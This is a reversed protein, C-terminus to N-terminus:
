GIELLKEGTPSHVVERLAQVVRMDNQEPFRELTALAEDVSIAGRYARPRVMACFANAVSLIRAPLIIEDGKIRRPYGTGDLRENMQCITEMVPLEFDIDKLINYAHEVHRQMAAMEEPTLRGPKNLIKKEVFMKGVQSLNAAAEVTTVELPELNLRRAVAASFAGMIRTHGGLYPDINEITHVLAQITQQVVRQGQERAQVIETIDRYVSLIGMAGDEGVNFPVKSIQLHRKESKLYITENVTVRKGKERVTADSVALRKATAHGFVTYDDLGVMEQPTRDLVEAFAPNAYTYRGREDKLVIYEPMTANISDLFARSAELQEALQKFENAEQKNEQGVLWWWLVALLFIVALTLLGSITYAAEAYASIPALAQAAEIEQVIWWPVGPVKLAMSYMGPTGSISRRLGFPMAEDTTFGAEPHLKRVGESLWPAVEEFTEGDQQVLRTRFGEDALPSTSLIDGISGTVAKTLMLVSVPRDDAAAEHAPKHIPLFMDLVLGNPTHRLPSFHPGSEAVTCIVMARQAETLATTGADTALYTTGDANLVRGALFGSYTTFEALLQRMMPMQEALTNGGEDSLGMGGFLVAVDDKLLDVEAGFLRFLDSDALQGSDKVLTQLWSMTLAVRGNCLITQQKQLSAELEGRKGRISVQVLTVAVGVAIATFLAGFWILKRRRKAMLATYEQKM